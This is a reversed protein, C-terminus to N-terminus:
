KLFANEGKVHILIDPKNVVLESQTRGVKIMLVLVIIGFLIWASRKVWKKM